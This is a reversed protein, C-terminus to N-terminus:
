SSPTLTVATRDNSGDMTVVARTATGDPTKFTGSSATTQGALIALAISCFQFFQVSGASDVVVTDTMLAGRSGQAVNPLATLGLRVADTPDYAVIQIEKTCAAMSAAGALEVVVANGGSSFCANPLDLRYLGPMNTSSLEFWGGSTYASTAAALSALTIAVPAQGAIAYYATLGSANFAVGTLALGTSSNKLAVLISRSTAGAKIQLM